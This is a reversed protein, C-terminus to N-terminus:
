SRRLTGDRLQEYEAVSSVSPLVLLLALYVLAILGATVLGLFIAITRVWDVRFNGRAAIGLCLGGFWKGEVIRCWFPGRAPEDAESASSPYSNVPGAESLLHRMDVDDVPDATTSTLAGLRDGIAAEMDRITEDRDPDAALAMRADELYRLLRQHAAPTLAFAGAHGSLRMHAVQDM